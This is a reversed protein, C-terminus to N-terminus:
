MKKLRIVAKELSETPEIINYAGWFDSDFYNSVQDALSKDPSFALKGAIKEVNEVQSDTTVFESAITYNTAFLRRRWECRFKLEFRIYNLQFKGDVDRYSVTYNMENPSFRLGFPKKRLVMATVKQRDTMEISCEIRTFALTQRDIYLTGSFLPYEAKIKPLFSVKLQMRDNITATGEMKFSYFNLEEKTFIVDRNKVFDLSTALNPGGLLKVALTDRLSPSVLRRGKLVQTRDNQYVSEYSNKYVNLVAESIDIYRKGKQITERYFGTLLAPVPTYNKEIKEIAAEVLKQPNDWGLVEVESLAVIRPSLGIIKIKANDSNNFYSLPLRRNTFGLVSFEIESVKLTDSIKLTFEGDANSITGTNTGVATVNVYEIAKKNTENRIKGGIIFFHESQQASVQMAAILMIWLVWFKKRITEM